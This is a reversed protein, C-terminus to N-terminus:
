KASALAADLETQFASYPQAGVLQKGNIYFTPTGSVSVSSGFTEDADIQNNYKGSTVCANFQTVNLGLKGAYESFKPKADAMNVWENQNGFLQAHMDWYKGQEGACRAALAGPKANPHFSLPYDHIVYQVKGSDVYDKLLQQETQTYYQECFPCQYDTFEAITVKANKPGKVAVAGDIM